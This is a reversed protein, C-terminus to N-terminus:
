PKQSIRTSVSSLCVTLCVSLCISVNKVISLVGKRSCFYNYIRLCNLRNLAIKSTFKPRVMAAVPSKTAYNTEATLSPRDGSTGGM